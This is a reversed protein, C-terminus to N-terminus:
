CSGYVVCKWVLSIQCSSNAKSLEFHVFSASSCYKSQKSWRFVGGASAIRWSRTYAQTEFPALSTFVRLTSLKLTNEEFISMESQTSAWICSDM